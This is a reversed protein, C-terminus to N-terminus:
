VASARLCRGRPLLDEASRRRMQDAFKPQTFIATGGKFARISEWTSDVTEYSYNSCLGNRGVNGALGKIGDWNVQIGAAVVLQKYGVRQGDALLVENQEPYFEVVRERVWAVNKPILDGESRETSEKSCVGGGVLTWLPQYYHKASPEVIAIDLNPDARRLRAACSIGGSGGGVILVEHSTAM